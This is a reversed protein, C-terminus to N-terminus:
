KLRSSYMTVVELSPGKTPDICRGLRQLKKQRRRLNKKRSRELLLELHESFSADAEDAMEKTWNSRHFDAKQGCLWYAHMDLALLSSLRQPDGNRFSPSCLLPRFFSFVWEAIHRAETVLLKPQGDRHLKLRKSFDIVGDFRIVVVEIKKLNPSNDLMAAIRSMVMNHTVTDPCTRLEYLIIGCLHSRNYPGIDRLWVFLADEDWFEFTRYYAIGRAESLVKKCTRLMSLYSPRSSAQLAADFQLGYIAFKQQTTIFQRKSIFSFDM